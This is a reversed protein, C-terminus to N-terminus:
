CRVQLCQSAQKHDNVGKNLDIDRQKVQGKRNPPLIDPFFDMTSCTIIM